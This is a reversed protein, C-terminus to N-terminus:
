GAPHERWWDVTMRLGEELGIAPAFGVEERLRTVDALLTDPDSEGRAIEGWRVLEPRGIRAAITEIVAGVTVPEGSAVNVAGCVESGLLAVFAGAVDSAHLFDRVQRGDSAPVAEGALLARTVAPVLRGPQEGPGYLFFIRGWAFEIGAIEALREATIHTAHKSTGYLTLPQVPSGTETLRPLESAGPRDLHSWDYEACTGAMVARRGGSAAFARFLALSAEVWRLNEPSTWFRGHEAYWALHLLQEPRVQEILEAPTRPDLLDAHHWSVGPELESAGQTVAHVDHGGRALAALANRGVLGTAGTVLVRSM